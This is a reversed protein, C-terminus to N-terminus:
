ISLHICIAHMHCVFFSDVIIFYICYLDSVYAVQTSTTLRSAITATLAPAIRAPRTRRGATTRVRSASSAMRRRRSTSALPARQM